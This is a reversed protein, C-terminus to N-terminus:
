ICGRLPFESYPAHHKVLGGLGTVVNAEVDLAEVLHVHGTDTVHHDVLLGGGEALGALEGGVERGEVEWRM